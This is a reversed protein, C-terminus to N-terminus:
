HNRFIFSHSKNTLVYADMYWCEKSYYKNLSLMPLSSLANVSLLSKSTQSYRYYFGLTLLPTCSCNFYHYFSRLQHPIQFTAEEM